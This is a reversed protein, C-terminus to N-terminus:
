ENKQILYKIEEIRVAMISDVLSDITEVRLNQCSDEWLARWDALEKNYLSDVMAREDPTLRVEEPTCSTAFLLAIVIFTIRLTV